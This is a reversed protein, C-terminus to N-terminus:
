DPNTAKPRPLPMRGVDNAVGALGAEPERPPSIPQLQYNGTAAGTNDIFKPDAYITGTPHLGNNLSISTDGGYILNDIYQNHPGTTGTEAIATRTSNYIINNEVLSYDNTQGGPSDGDGVTM